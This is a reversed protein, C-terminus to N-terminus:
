KRIVTKHNGTNSSVRFCTINMTWNREETTTTVPNKRPFNTLLFIYGEPLMKKQINNMSPLCNRINALQSLICKPTPSGQQHAQGKCQNPLLEDMLQLSAMNMKVNNEFQSQQYLNRNNKSITIIHMIKLSAEWIWTWIRRVIPRSSEMTLFKANLLNHKYEALM